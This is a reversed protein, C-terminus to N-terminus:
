SRGRLHMYRMVQAGYWLIDRTLQVAFPVKMTKALRRRQRVFAWKDLSFPNFGKSIQGPHVRYRLYVEPLNAIDHRVALRLYLDYDELTQATTSYGGVELFASRRFMITPHILSNRTLLRLKIADEGTIATLPGLPTEHHDIKIAQCGVVAVRPHAQLFAVQARLRGPLSIDDGDMRAIFESTARELGVNLARAIGMRSGLPLCTVRPDELWAESPVETMGDLLLIVEFRPYGDNLISQLARRLWPDVRISPLLVCVAPEDGNPPDQPREAEPGTM